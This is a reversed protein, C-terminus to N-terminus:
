SSREEPLIDELTQLMTEVRSRIIEREQGWQEKEGNSQSLENTKGSLEQELDYVKAELLNNKEKLEAMLRLVGSIRSELQELKQLDM